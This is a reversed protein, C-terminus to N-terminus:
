RKTFYCIRADALSFPCLCFTKSSIAIKTLITMQCNSTGMCAPDIADNNFIISVEVNTSYVILLLPSTVEMETTRSLRRNSYIFLCMANQTNLRHSGNQLGVMYKVEESKHTKETATDTRFLRIFLYLACCEM